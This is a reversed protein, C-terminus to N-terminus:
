PGITARPTAPGRARSKRARATTGGVTRCLLSLPPPPQPARSPRRPAPSATSGRLLYASRLLGPNARLDSGPRLSAPAALRRALQPFVELVWDRGAQAQERSLAYSAVRLNDEVTLDPLQLAASVLFWAAL